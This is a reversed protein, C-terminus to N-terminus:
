AIEDAEVLEDDASIIGLDELSEDPENGFLGTSASLAASLNKVAQRYYSPKLESGIFKRGMELAVFGESGIGAFWSAVVDGPNSWLKIARRIVGLQLCCLHREDENERASRGQLTNSQDIAGDDDGNEGGRVDNFVLFGEDDFTDATAWVPSAYRQWLSVPFQNHTHSIPEPNAEPKRFVLLYDAVGNRSMSSDKRITKHLLGLAKTRQMATVPNKWICVESHYIWGKSVFLRIVDGRFDRLGIVGHRVKSTPLQMVHIACLRGPMSVRLQEEVLFQYHAFFEDDSKCNGLDRESNSYVFLDAFPPSMVQFGISNDPIEKILECSDSLHMTWSDEVVSERSYTTEDRSVGRLNDRTLSAMAERMEDAMEQAEREKRKLNEIVNGETSASIIHVNVEKMQGFRWCRRVAQFYQEFSDTVGVFVMNHCNQLNLGYGFMSSKTSLVRLKGSVFDEVRQVKVADSDSGSAQQSDPVMEFVAESERNLNNWAIWQETSANILEAAKSAREEATDRRAAIREALSDAPMAFLMGSTPTHVEIEHHIINLKPLIYGEDSHGIDSPLQLMVAWSAVWKWFEKKAHGKIRWKQTEGGDHVFFMSLMEAQTMVGLFEAHNGLEVYDNPAPTASAPLKFLTNSFQETILARTASDTAKLCSSEDIVVGGFKSPDFKNIRDINTCTIRCLDSDDQRYAIGKKFEFKEAERVIQHSVALPAVHLVPLNTFKAVNEAWQLEIITKGLGTAAFVASRGMQLSWKLIDRQHPKMARHYKIYKADMGTAHARIRKGELFKEYDSM